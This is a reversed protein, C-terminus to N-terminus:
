KILDEFSLTTKEALLAEYDSEFKSFADLAQKKHGMNYLAYCKLSIADEDINDHLLIVNAMKLLLLLDKKVEANERYQLMIEILSNVYEAQYVELWEYQLYPLLKGTLALDVLENLISKNFVKNKKLMHILAHIRVYDCYVDELGQVTQSGSENIIELEQFSKLILRLKNINVNRNNRASQDDKDFWLINRLERSTTGKGNKLTTMLILLFLQATTPTFDGTLDNGTSDIIKFNGLLYISSPKDQAVPKLLEVEMLEIKKEYMDKTQRSRKRWLRYIVGAPIFLMALILWYLSYQLNKKESYQLVDKKLKPPYAISYIEVKSGSTIYAILKSEKEDLFLSAWSAIDLFNYPISDNYFVYSGDDIDFRGLRLHTNHQMSNYVLTYFCNSEEDFVLSECPVFPTEPSPFTLIKQFTFNTLDFYFLDYYFRPSLEQHGTQSGFGGFVLAKDESIVTAGSLYRPEIQDSRDIKEWCGSRRNYHHVDSSYKYHGYGLISILSSDIPSIFRNQHAYLSKIPETPNGSWSQSKFDFINIADVGFDYSWFQDFYENYILQRSNKDEYPRNKSYFITDVRFSDADVRYLETDNMFFIRRNKSDHASGILNDVYLEKIKKWKVHKDIIWVPNHVIAEVNNIEDYVKDNFHEALKWYRSLEGNNFLRINKLSMPCVDTSVFYQYDHSGFVIHFLDTKLSEPLITDRRVDNISLSINSTPVDVEFKIKIWQNYGVDSLQDWKFSLLTQEKYVLWFNSELSASNSVLDINVEDESLLRFVYGYYGDGQRFSAEFELSLNRSFKFPAHPTLNLSTRKDQIVEHSSFYLGSLQDDQCFMKFSCVFFLLYFIITDRKMIGFDM